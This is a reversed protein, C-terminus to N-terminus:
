DGDMTVQFLTHEGQQFIQRLYTAQLPNWDGLAREVPGWIVYDVGFEALLTVRDRDTSEEDFFANVRLLNKGLNPSEPGHGIVVFQPTWAPLANGTQFASLVVQNKGASAELYEFVRIQDVLIFLPQGPRLAAQLSGGWL